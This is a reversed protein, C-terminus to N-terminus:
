QLYMMLPILSKSFLSISTTTPKDLFFQYKQGNGLVLIAIHGNQYYLSFLTVSRRLTVPISNGDGVSARFAKLAHRQYLGLVFATRELAWGFALTQTAHILLFIIQCHRGIPLHPFRDSDQYLSKVVKRPHDINNSFFLSCEKWVFISYAGSLFQM